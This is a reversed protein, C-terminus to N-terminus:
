PSEEESAITRRTQEAAGGRPAFPSCKQARHDVTRLFNSEDFMPSHGDIVDGSSGPRKKQKLAERNVRIM